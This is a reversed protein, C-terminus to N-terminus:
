KEAKMDHLNNYLPLMIYGRQQKVPAALPEIVASRGRVAETTLVSRVTGVTYTARYTIFIELVARVYTTHSLSKVCDNSHGRFGVTACKGVALLRVHAEADGKWLCAGVM